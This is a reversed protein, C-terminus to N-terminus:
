LCCMELVAMRVFLGYENQTFYCANPMNDVAEDIEDIRPLANLIISGHALKGAVSKTIKYTDRTAQSFTGSPNKPPFGTVYVVQEKGWDHKTYSRHTNGHVAFLTKYGDQVRLQPPAVENITINSFNSLLILLSHVSRAYKLEGIM